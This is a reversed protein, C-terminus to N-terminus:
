TNKPEVPYVEHNPDWWLVHMIGDREVCWLREASGVRWSHLHEVDDQQLEKLRGQADKCLATIRPSHRMRRIDSLRLLREFDPLKDMIQQLTEPHREWPWQGEKDASSFRWSLPRTVTPHEGKVPRKV